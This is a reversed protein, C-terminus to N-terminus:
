LLCGKTSLNDTVCVCSCQCVLCACQCVYTLVPAQTSNCLNLDRWLAWGEFRTHLSDEAGTAAIFSMPRKVRGRCYEMASQYTGGPAFTLWGSGPAIAKFLSVECGLRLVM